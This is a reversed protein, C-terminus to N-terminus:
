AFVALGTSGAHTLIMEAARNPIAYGYGIATTESEGYGVARSPAGGREVAYLHKLAIKCGETIGWPIVKRGAWYVAEFQAFPDGSYFFPLGAVHRVIGTPEDVLLDSIDYMFGYTLLPTISVLGNTTSGDRRNTTDLTTGLDTRVPPNGLTLVRGQARVVETVQRTIVRGVKQETWETIATSYGRIDNDHSTDGDPIKLIERAESLAIITVDPSERVEFSDVVPSAAVLAGSWSWVWLHHGAQTVTWPDELAWSGTSVSSVGPTATTRDPLTITLVPPDDPDAPNGSGDELQLVIDGPPVSAGLDYPSGV